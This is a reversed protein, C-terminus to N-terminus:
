IKVWCESLKCFGSTNYENFTFIKLYEGSKSASKAQVRNCVPGIKGYHWHVAKIRLLNFIKGGAHLRSQSGLQELHRNEVSVISTLRFDRFDRPFKLPEAPM